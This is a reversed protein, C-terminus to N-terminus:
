NQGQQLEGTTALPGMDAFFQHLGNPSPLKMGNQEKNKGTKLVEFSILFHESQMMITVIVLFLIALMSHSKSTSLCLTVFVLKSVVVDIPSSVKSDVSSLLFALFRSFCCLHLAQLPSLFSSKCADEMDFSFKTIYLSVLPGLFPEPEKSLCTWM